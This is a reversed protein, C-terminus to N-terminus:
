PGPPRSRKRAALQRLHEYLWAVSVGRPHQEEYVPTEVLVRVDDTSEDFAVIASAYSEPGPAAM